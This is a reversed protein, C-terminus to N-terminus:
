EVCSTFKDDDWKPGKFTMHWSKGGCDASIQGFANAGMAHITAQDASTCAGQSEETAAVVEEGSCPEIPDPTFGTCTALDVQAPDSCKLCGDSCWSFLCATKCHNLGYEGTASYCQACSDSISVQGEVCSTFKDDDWKPGKFTM